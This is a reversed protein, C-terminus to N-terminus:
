TLKAGLMLLAAYSALGVMIMLLGPLLMPKADGGNAQFLRFRNAQISKARYAAVVCAVQCALRIGRPPLARSQAWLTFACCALTLLSFAILAKRAHDHMDLNKYNRIVVWGAAVPGGFFAILPMGQTDHPAGFGEANDARTLTPTFLDDDFDSEHGSNLDPDHPQM